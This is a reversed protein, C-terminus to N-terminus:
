LQDGEKNEGAMANPSHVAYKSLFSKSDKLGAGGDQQWRSYPSLARVHRMKPSAIRKM